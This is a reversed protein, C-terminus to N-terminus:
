HRPRAAPKAADPGMPHTWSGPQPNNHLIVGARYHSFRGALDLVGEHLAEEITLTVHGFSIHTAIEEGEETADAVSTFTRSITVATPLLLRDQGIDLALTRIAPDPTAAVAVEVTPTTSAASAAGGLRAIGYACGRAYGREFAEARARERIELERRAAAPSAPLLGTM